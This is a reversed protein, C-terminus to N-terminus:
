RALWSPVHNARARTDVRLQTVDRKDLARVYFQVGGPINKFSVATAVHIIPCHGIDAPGGHLGSHEPAAGDPGNIYAHVRALSYIRERASDAAATVSIFVGDPADVVNTVTDPVASPCNAM